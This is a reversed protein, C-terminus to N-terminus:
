LHQEILFSYIGRFKTVLPDNTKPLTGNISLESDLEM